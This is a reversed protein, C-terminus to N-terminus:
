WVKPKEAAQSVATIKNSMLSYQVSLLMLWEKLTFDSAMDVDEDSGPFLYLPFCKFESWWSHWLLLDQSLKVEEGSKNQLWKLHM